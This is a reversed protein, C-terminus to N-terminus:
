CAASEADGQERHQNKPQQRAAEAAIFVANGHLLGYDAHFGGQICGVLFEM